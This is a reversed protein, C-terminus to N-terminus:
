GATMSVAAGPLTSQIRTRSPLYRRVALNPAAFALSHPIEKERLKRIGSRVAEGSLPTGHLTWPINSHDGRVPSFVPTITDRAALARESVPQNVTTSHVQNM